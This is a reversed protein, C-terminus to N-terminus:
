CITIENPTQIEIDIGWGYLENEYKDYLLEAKPNNKLVFKLDSLYGRGGRFSEVLKNIVMAQTNLVDQLNTAGRFSGDYDKSENVIDLCMVNITFDITTGSYEISSINFHALPFLTTKALDVESLQGFKVANINKENVTFHNEVADLISYVNKM